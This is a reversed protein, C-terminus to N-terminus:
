RHNEQLHPNRKFFKLTRQFNGTRIREKAVEEAVSIEEQRPLFQNYKSHVEMKGIKTAKVIKIRMLKNGLKIKMTGEIGIKNM